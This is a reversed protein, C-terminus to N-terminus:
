SHNQIRALDGIFEDCPGIMKRCALKEIGIGSKFPYPSFCHGAILGHRTLNPVREIKGLKVRKFGVCTAPHREDFLITADMMSIEDRPSIWVFHSRAERAEAVITWGVDGDRHERKRIFLTVPEIAFLHCRVRLAYRSGSQHSLRAAACSVFAEEKLGYHPCSTYRSSTPLCRFVDTAVFFFGGTIVSHSTFTRPRQSGHVM